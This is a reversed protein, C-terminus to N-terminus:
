CSYVPINIKNMKMKWANIKQVFADFNVKAQQGVASQNVPNTNCGKVIHSTAGCRFCAKAPPTPPDEWGPYNRFQNCTQPSPILPSCRPPGNGQRGQRPPAVNGQQNPNAASNNKKRFAVYAAANEKTKLAQKKKNASSRSGEIQKLELFASEVMWEGVRLLGRFTEWHHQPM